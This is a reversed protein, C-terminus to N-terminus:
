IVVKKKPKQFTHYKFTGDDESFPVTEMKLTVSNHSTSAAVQFKCFSLLLDDNPVYM